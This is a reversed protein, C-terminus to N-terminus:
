LMESAKAQRIQSLHNTLVSNMAYAFLLALTMAKTKM